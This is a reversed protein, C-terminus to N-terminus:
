PLTPKAKLHVEVTMRSGAVSVLGYEGAYDRFFFGVDNRALIELYSDLNAQLHRLASAAASSDPYDIRIMTRKGSVGDYDAAVAVITRHLQLVDGSGLTYVAQLAYPGRALRMSGAVIGDSPLTGTFTVPEEAPLRSAVFRASELMDTRLAEEGAANNVVVYYRNRKFILQYNNITHREAFAADGSEKGCKMLYVGTAAASDTMRYIELQLEGAHSAGQSGSSDRRYKCVTLQEFGFELFLEAGGDIHGYLDASTFVRSRVAKKWRGLFNDPPLLESNGASQPPLGAAGSWLLCFLLALSM